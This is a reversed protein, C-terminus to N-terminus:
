AMRIQATLWEASQLPTPGKKWPKHGNKFARLAHFLAFHDQSLKDRWTLTSIAFIARASTDPPIPFNYRGMADELATELEGWAEQFTQSMCSEKM